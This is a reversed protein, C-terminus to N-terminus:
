RIGYVAVHRTSGGVYMSIKTDSAYHAYCKVNDWESLMANKTASTCTKFLYLPYICPPFLSTNADNIVFAIYKFQSLSPVTYATWIAITESGVLYTLEGSNEIKTNLTTIQNQLEKGQRADLAYGSNTTTLNNAM